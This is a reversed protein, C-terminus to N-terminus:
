SRVKAIDIGFRLKLTRQLDWLDSGHQKYDDSNYRCEKRQQRRLRVCEALEKNSATGLWQGWDQEGMDGDECYSDYDDDPGVEGYSQAARENMDAQVMDAVIEEKSYGNMAVVDQAWAAQKKSMAVM